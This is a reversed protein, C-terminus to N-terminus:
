IQFIKVFSDATISDGFLREDFIVNSEILHGHGLIIGVVAKAESDFAVM